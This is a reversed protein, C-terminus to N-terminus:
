YKRSRCLFAAAGLLGLAMTSPEPVGIAFSQLGTLIPDTIPAGGAPPIGGLGNVLVDNSEGRSNISEEWTAGAWARMRVTASGGPPVGPIAVIQQNVYYAAAASTTRFTTTPSLPTLSGGAGVLFLQATVGAGAGTGDIRRSVPADVNGTRNNFILTGQGFATVSVLGAALMGLLNKM